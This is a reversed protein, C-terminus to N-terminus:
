QKELMNSLDLEEFDTFTTGVTSPVCGSILLVLFILINKLTSNM